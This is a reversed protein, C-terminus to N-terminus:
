EQKLGPEPESVQVQNQNPNPNPFKETLRDKQFYYVTALVIAGIFGIGIMGDWFRKDQHPDSPPVPKDAPPKSDGFSLRSSTHSFAKIPIPKRSHFSQPHSATLNM